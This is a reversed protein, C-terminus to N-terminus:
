KVKNKKQQENKPKIRKRRRRIQKKHSNPMHIFISLLSKITKHTHTHSFKYKWYSNTPVRVSFVNQLEKKELWILLSFNQCQECFEPSKHHFSNASKRNSCIWIIHWCFYVEADPRYIWSFTVAKLKKIQGCSFLIFFQLMEWMDESTVMPWKWFLSTRNIARDTVVSEISAHINWLNRGSSQEGEVKWCRLVCQGCPRTDCNEAIFLAFTRKLVSLVLKYEYSQASM